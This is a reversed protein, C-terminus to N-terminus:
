KIINLWIYILKLQLKFNTMSFIVCYKIQM